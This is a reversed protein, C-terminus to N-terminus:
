KVLFRELMICEERENISPKENSIYFAEKIKRKVTSLDRDLISFLLDPKADPHLTGYHKSLAEEPYINPNAAYRSHEMLREHVPRSTEGIYVEKCINCVIKYVCGLMQCDSNDIFRPCINCRSIFCKRKDYPRSSCFIDRLKPGPTFIVRLPLAHSVIYRKVNMSFVESIYPLSLSIYEIDKSLNSSVMKPKIQNYNIYQRPNQYSNHTLLKDVVRYSEKTYADNSSCNKATKYFNKVTELKTSLPHHSNFNITIDKKQAKRYYKYHLGGMEDIRIQTSLFPVFQECSEPFDLEWKLLNDPDSESIKNLLEWAGEKTSSLSGVDDMYRGFFLHVPNSLYCPDTYISRREFTFVRIVASLPSPRCGMFLGVLQQYMRNNYTFFSRSLVLDLMLHVETLSLGWLDLQDIHEAAFEIIDDVCKEININTYLSIVDASYFQLGQLQDASLGQLSEIHRHIHQLHSPVFKLLPSLM